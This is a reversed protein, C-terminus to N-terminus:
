QDAKPKLEEFKAEARELLEKIREPDLDMSEGLAIMQSEDLGLAYIEALLRPFQISDDKWVKGPCTSEDHDTLSAGCYQCVRRAAHEVRAEELLEDFKDQTIEAPDWESWPEDDVDGEKIGDWDVRFIKADVGPTVYVEQVLGGQVDILIRKDPESM